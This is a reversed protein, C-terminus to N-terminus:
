FALERDDGACSGSHRPRQRPYEDALAGSHEGGVDTSTLLLCGGFKAVSDHRKMAIDGLFILDFRSM